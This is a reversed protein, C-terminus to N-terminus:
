IRSSKTFPPFSESYTHPTPHRHSNPWKTSYPIPPHLTRTIGLLTRVSNRKEKEAIEAENGYKYECM